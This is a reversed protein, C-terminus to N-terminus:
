TSAPPPVRFVETIGNSATWYAGDHSDPPNAGFLGAYTANVYLISPPSGAYVSTDAIIWADYTEFYFIALNSNNINRWVKTLGLIPQEPLFQVSQTNQDFYYYGEEAPAYFGDAWGGDSNLVRYYTDLVVIIM